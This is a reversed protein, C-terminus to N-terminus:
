PAALGSDRIRATTPITIEGSPHSARESRIRILIGEIRPSIKPMLCYLCVPLLAEIQAITSEATERRVNRTAIIKSVLIM